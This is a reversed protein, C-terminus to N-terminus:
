YCSLVSKLPSAIVGELHTGNATDEVWIAFKSDFQAQMVSKEDFTVRYKHGKEAVFTLELSTFVRGGEYILQVRHEGPLVALAGDDDMGAANGDVKCPTVAQNNLFRKTDDFAIVAVADSSLPPGEYARGPHQAGACSTAFLVLVCVYRASRSMFSRYLVRGGRLFAFNRTAGPAAYAGVGSAGVRRRFRVVRPASSQEGIL